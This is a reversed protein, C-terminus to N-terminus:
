CVSDAAENAGKLRSALSKSRRPEGGKSGSSSREKSSARLIEVHTTTRIGVEVDVERRADGEMVRVYTRGM